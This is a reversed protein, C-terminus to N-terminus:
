ARSRSRHALRRPRRPPRPAPPRPQRSASATSAPSASARPATGHEGAMGPPVSCPTISRPTKTPRISRTLAPQKRFTTGWVAAPISSFRVARNAAMPLKAASRGTDPLSVRPVRSRSRSMPTSATPLPRPGFLLSRAVRTKEPQRCNSPVAQAVLRAAQAVLRSAQMQDEAEFGAEGARGLARAFGLLGSKYPTVADQGLAASWAALARQRFAQQTAPDALNGSYAAAPNYGSLLGGMFGPQQQAGPIPPPIGPDTLLGPQDPM